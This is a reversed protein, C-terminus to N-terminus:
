SSEGRLELEIRGDKYIHAARLITQFQAKQQRVELNQFAEMFMKIVRRVREVMAESAKAQKLKDSLEGRVRKWNPKRQGPKKM